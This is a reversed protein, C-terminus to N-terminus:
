YNPIDISKNMAFRVITYARLMEEKNVNKFLSVYCRSFDGLGSGMNDNQTAYIVLLRFVQNDSFYIKDNSKYLDFDKELNVLYYIKMLRIDENTPMFTNCELQYM